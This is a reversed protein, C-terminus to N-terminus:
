LNKLDKDANGHGGVSRFTHHGCLVKWPKNDTSDNQLMMSNNKSVPNM